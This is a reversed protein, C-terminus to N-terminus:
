KIKIKEEEEGIFILFNEFSTWYLIRKTKLYAINKEVKFYCTRDKTSDKFVLFSIISSM